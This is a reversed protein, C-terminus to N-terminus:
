FGIDFAGRLGINMTIGLGSGSETYLPLSTFEPTPNGLVTRPPDARERSLFLLDAGVFAGLRLFKTVWYSANLDLGVILGRMNVDPPLVTGPPLSNRFLPPDLNQDWIYGVHASLIPSLPRLPLGYGASAAFTWLAFETTDYIRWRMGLRVDGLRVGGSLGYLFGNAATRDFGTNDSLGALDPRTFAIDGSFYVARPAEKEEEEAKKKEAEEEEAKKAAEEQKRKAEEESKQQAEQAEQKEKEEKKPDKKPAAPKPKQAHAERVVVTSAVGLVCSAVVLARRSRPLPMRRM